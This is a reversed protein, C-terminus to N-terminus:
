ADASIGAGGWPAAFLPARPRGRVPGRGSEGFWLEEAAIGGFSIQTQSLLETRNRLFRQETYSHALLGLSGRRRIISLVELKRGIGM